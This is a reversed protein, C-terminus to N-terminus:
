VKKVEEVSVQRPVVAQQTGTNAVFSGSLGQLSSSAGIVSNVAVGRDDESDESDDHGSPLASPGGYAIGIDMNAIADGIAQEGRCCM